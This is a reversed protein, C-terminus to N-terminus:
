DGVARRRRGALGLVDISHQLPLQEAGDIHWKLLRHMVGQFGQGPHNLVPAPLPQYQHHIDSRQDM